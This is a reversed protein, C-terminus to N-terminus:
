ENSEYIKRVNDYVEETGIDWWGGELVYGYVSEKKCLWEIFHGPSDHNHGEELYDHISQMSTQPIAYICTGVLNTTVIPSKEVFTIIRGDSNLEVSSYNRAIHEEKLEYLVIIPAKKLKYLQLVNGLSSTFMNDGAIILFDERPFRKQIEALARIAGLKKKDYTTEEINMILKSRKNSELWRQFHKEFKRNISILIKNISDMEYLKDIIHDIIPRGHVLLLPKPTNKTLPYLRTAYGGALIVALM